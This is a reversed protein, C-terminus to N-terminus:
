AAERALATELADLARDLTFGAARERGRRALEDRAAADDLLGALAGALAEVDGSPVLRGAAGDALLSAVDGVRTAVVPIGATMAEIVSVPQTEVMPLSPLAFLDFAPLV